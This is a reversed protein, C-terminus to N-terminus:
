CETAAYTTHHTSTRGDATATITVEGAPLQRLRSNFSQYAQKGPAVGNVTKSGYPTTLTMTVPVASDNTVSVAVYATTGICRTTATITLAIEPPFPATRATDVVKTGDAASLLGANVWTGVTSEM